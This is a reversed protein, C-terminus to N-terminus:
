CIDESWAVTKFTSHRCYESVGKAYKAKVLYENINLWYKTVTADETTSEAKCFVLAVNGFFKSQGEDIDVLADAGPKCKDEVAAKAEKWGEKNQEPIDILSLRVKMTQGDVLNVTIKDGALIQNVTASLNGNVGELNLKNNNDSQKEQEQEQGYANETTILSLIVVVLTGLGIAITIILVAM